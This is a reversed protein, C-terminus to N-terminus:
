RDALDFTWYRAAPNGRFSGIFYGAGIETFAPNMLNRCHRESALWGQIVSPITPNGFAINEGYARWPYGQRSIREGASAGDSGTHSQFNKRVMDKSHLYAATALAGSWSVPPAPRFPTNGCMRKVSRARNVAALFEGRIDAVGPDPDNGSRPPTVSGGPDTVNGDGGWGNVCAPLALLSLVTLVALYRGLTTKGLPFDNMDVVIEPYPPVNSM